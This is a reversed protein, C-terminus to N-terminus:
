NSLERSNEHIYAALTRLTAFVKEGVERNDIKVGYDREIMIVMELVDISDIGLDGGVLQDDLKIDDPGVGTLNLVEVIKVKLEDLLEKMLGVAIFSKPNNRLTGELFPCECSFAPIEWGSSRSNIAMLAELWRVDNIRWVAGQNM